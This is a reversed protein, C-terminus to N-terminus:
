ICPSPDFHRVKDYGEASRYEMLAKLDQLTCGYHRADHEDAM